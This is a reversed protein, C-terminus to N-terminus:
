ILPIDLRSIIQKMIHFVNFISFMLFNIAKDNVRGTLRLRSLIEKVDKESFIVELIIEGQLKGRKVLNKVPLTLEGFATFLGMLISSKGSSNEGILVNYKTLNWLAIREWCRFNYM